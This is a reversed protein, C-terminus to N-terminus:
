KSKSDLFWDSAESLDSFVQTKITSGLDELMSDYMRSLGFKYDHNVVIATKGNERNHSFSNLVFEAIKQIDFKSLKTLDAEIFDWMYYKTVDEPSIIKIKNIIQEASIVGSATIITLDNEKNVKIIIENM